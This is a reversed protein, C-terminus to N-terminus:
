SLARLVVLRVARRGCEIEFRPVSWDIRHLGSGGVFRGGERLFLFLPLDRRALFESHAQRAFAESVEVSQEEHAWPMWPLLEPLSERIAEHVAAGDGSRPARILLRESEFADPFEQLIPRALRGPIV